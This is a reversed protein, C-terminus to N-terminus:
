FEFLKHLMIFLGIIAARAANATSVEVVLTAYACYPPVPPLVPVAEGSCIGSHSCSPIGTAFQLSTVIRALFLSVAACSFGAVPEPVGISDVVEPWSITNTPTKPAIKPPTAAANKRLPLPAFGTFVYVGEKKTENQVNYGM